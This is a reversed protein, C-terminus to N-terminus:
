FGKPACNTRRVPNCPVKPLGSGAPITWVTVANVPLGSAGIVGVANTLTSLTTTETDQKASTAFDKGNLTSLSSDLAYGTLAAPPTLTTLQAATLVVPLSAAALAQGQSPIKDVDTKISALNGSELALASTNLNTGANATVTGSIPQTAQWFTGSVPQTAQWFTGTVAVSANDLTVHQSDAPKTRSSMLVDLNDTKAKILALTAQTALTSLLVDLNAFNAHTVGISTNSFTVTPATLKSDISALSVNEILQNAASADGTGGGSGACGSVCTDVIVHPVRTSATQAVALVPWLV